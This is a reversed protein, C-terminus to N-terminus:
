KNQTGTTTREPSVIAGERVRQIGRVIVLDDAELGKLIITERTPVTNTNAAPINVAVGTLVGRREVKNDSGVVWVYNGAIDKLISATPVMLASNFTQPYGIEAFLGASLMGDPNPFTARVQATRSRENLKNDIYDIRGLHPYKTGDALKLSVQNLEQGINKNKTRARYFELMIREPVEYYARISSEDVVTTLKTPEGNGVLNGVDVLSRAIRGSIPSEIKTYSLDIETSQLQAEAQKVGAAANDLDARARELDLESVAKPGAKTLRGLNATALRLEAKAQDLDALAAAKAAEYVESEITFLKDGQQVQRGEAFFAEELNGKVRARVDVEAIGALSAPFKEYVTQDRQSPTSVTVSPPPPPSFKNKRGCHTLFASSAIAVISLPILAKM